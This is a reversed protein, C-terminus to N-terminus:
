TWEQLAQAWMWCLPSQPLALRSMTFKPGAALYPTISNACSVGNITNLMDFWPFDADAYMPSNFTWPVFSSNGGSALTIFYRGLQVGMLMGAANDVPFHVGAIVRNVAIRAALRMLQDRWRSQGYPLRLQGRPVRYAREEAGAM